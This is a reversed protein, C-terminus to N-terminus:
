VSDPSLILRMIQTLCIYINRSSEDEDSDSVLRVRREPSTEKLYNSTEEVRRRKDATPVSASAKRKAYKKIKRKLVPSWVEM